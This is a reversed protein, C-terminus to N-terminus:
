CLDENPNYAYTLHLRHRGACALEGLGGLTQGELGLTYTQMCATKNAVCPAVIAPHARGVLSYQDINGYETGGCRAPFSQQTAAPLHLYEDCDM